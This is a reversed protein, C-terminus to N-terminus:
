LFTWLPKGEKDMEWMRVGGRFAALNSGIRVGVPLAQVHKSNGGGLVVYDAVLAKQLNPVTRLICDGWERKGDKKLGGRGLMEGVTRKGFHLDSLELTLVMRNIVMASGLGTGLGLFLMRGGEYCGLAQMAADNAWRVPRGFAQQFDFGVWGHGLNGAEAKPGSDGVLGPYGISVAGFDWGRSLARIARLMKNPTFDPGSPVKRPKTSGQLLVKMRHGGIDISLIPSERGEKRRYRAQMANGGPLVPGNANARLEELILDAVERIAGEEGCARTIFRVAKRVELTAIPVAVPVGVGKLPLDIKDDGVYAVAKVPLRHV